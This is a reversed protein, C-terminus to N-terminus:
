LYKSYLMYEYEKDLFNVLNSSVYIHGTKKNLQLSVINVIKAARAKRVKYPSFDFPVKYFYGSHDAYHNNHLKVATHISISRRAKNEYDYSVFHPSGFLRGEYEYSLGHMFETLSKFQLKYTDIIEEPLLINETATM